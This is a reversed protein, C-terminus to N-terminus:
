IRISHLLEQFLPGMNIIDQPRGEKLAKRAHASSYILEFPPKVPFLREIEEYKRKRHRTLLNFDKITKKLNDNKWYDIVEYGLMPIEDNSEDRVPPRDDEPMRLKRREDFVARKFTDLRKKVFAWFPPHRKLLWIAFEKPGEQENGYGYILFKWDLGIVNMQMHVQFVHSVKPMDDSLKYQSFKIEVYLGKLPGASIRRDPSILLRNQEFNVHKVVDVTEVETGMGMLRCFAIALPDEFMRGLRMNGEPDGQKWDPMELMQM